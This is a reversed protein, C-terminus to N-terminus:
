GIKLLGSAYAAQGAHQLDDAIVSILRAGLTVPPDWREDVIRDLDDGTLNSLFDLTQQHTADYYSTLLEGSTVQVASVEDYDHGYGTDEPDLRLAFQEFWGKTTWVEKFGAVDAVQKDQIRTLHWILWAISNGGGNPRIALHEPTLRDVTEHVIGHVRNFADTLLGAPTM